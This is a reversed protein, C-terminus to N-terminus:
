HTTRLIDAVAAALDAGSAPKSVVKVEPWARRFPDGAPQGTYLLFPIHREALLRAIPTVSERGLRLDLTAASIKEHLVFELAQAVTFAPGIVSAGAEELTTQIELAIIFEDEVVLIRSGALRARPGENRRNREETGHSSSNRSNSLTSSDKRIFSM